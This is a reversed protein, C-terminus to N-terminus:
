SAVRSAAIAANALLQRRPHRGSYIPSDLFHLRAIISVPLPRGSTRQPQSKPPEERLARNGALDEKKLVACPRRRETIGAVGEIGWDSTPQIDVLVGQFTFHRIMAFGFIIKCAIHFFSSLGPERAALLFVALRVDLLSLFTPLSVYVLAIRRPVIPHCDSGRKQDAALVSHGRGLGLLRDATAVIGLKATPEGTMMEIVDVLAIPTAQDLHYVVQWRDLSPSCRQRLDGAQTEIM